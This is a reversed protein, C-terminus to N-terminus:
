KETEERRRRVAYFVAASVLILAPLVAFNVAMTANKAKIFESEDSIKFLSTNSPSKQMLRAIKEEGRLKLLLSATYDYNRFDGQESTSTFGTMLSSLFFQDPIVAASFGTTQAIAGLVLTENEAGAAGATQPVNFPDLLFLNSPDSSPKQKWAYPSSVLLPEASQYCVLPSAWSLMVGEFAENQPLVSIWLPYNMTRYTTNVGEGSTMTLPFNSLDEALSSDFVFGWENLVKLFFDNKLATVKWEDKLNVTYPSTMALVSTGRECAKKISQANEETLNKSGILLIQCDKAKSAELHDLVQSVQSLPLVETYFGRANLWPEVYSYDESVSFGNGAIIYLHRESGTLLQQIRQTLDYELTKTSIVFPIVASKDLYQLLVASYVYTYEVKTSNESRMQRGQIGLRALKDPDAKQATFFVNRDSGAFAALYESVDQTQPYFQKLEKSQYYTIRLPNELKFCLERSVASVSYQKTETFDLRFYLRELSLSLFIITLSSLIVTARNLKRGTRRSEKASALLIFILSALVFFAFDRSDFIGKSFANFRWAFSVKQLLGATFDGVKLFSPIIHVTNFCFLILMGSLIALTSKSASFFSFLFVTLSACCFIYLLSATFGTFVQGADVNGFFSTCVPVCVLLLVPIVAVTFVAFSLTLFRVPASVPLSDDNIFRRLRFTLLPVTLVCVSALSNFFPILSTSGDAMSFFRNALFFMFAAYLVTIVSCAYFLPDIFFAYLSNKYLSRNM